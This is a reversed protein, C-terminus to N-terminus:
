PTPALQATKVVSFADLSVREVQDAHRLAPLSRKGLAEARLRWSESRLKLYEDAKAVMARQEPRINDISQLRQRITQLEPLVRRAIVDALAADGIAGLRFQAVAADYVRATTQEVAILHAIEPTVDVFSRRFCGHVGSGLSVALVAGAAALARRDGARAAAVFGAGLRLAVRLWALALQLWVSLRSRARAREEQNMVYVAFGGLLLVVLMTM